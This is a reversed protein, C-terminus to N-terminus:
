YIKITNKHVFGKKYVATPLYNVTKNDLFEIYVWNFTYDYNIPKVVQDKKTPITNIIKGSWSATDRVPTNAILFKAQKGDAIKTKATDMVSVPVPKQTVPNVKVPVEAVVIQEEIDAPLEDSSGGIGLLGKIKDRFIYTTVLLAVACGTIIVIKKKDM